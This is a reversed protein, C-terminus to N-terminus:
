AEASPDYRRLLEKAAKAYTEDSTDDLFLVQAKEEEQPRSRAAAAAYAADYHNELIDQVFEDWQGDAVLTKWASVREHGVRKVLVDICELLRGTETTEFHKYGARIWKVRESMPIELQTIDAIRMGSWMTSPVQVKGIMSSEGEVFVPRSADFTRAKFAIRSDFMKQSPQERAGPEEGLISGRHNAMVELDIVQAGAAELADLLKGKACGTKGAIVHYRFKDMGRLFELVGARYRKYGGPAFYVDFGIRSLVHALSLSREGGRWCYVLIKTDRPATLFREDIIKGLNAAVMAAGVKKAEFPDVQKYLTGVEKRQADNLVPTSVAGPVHDDDYESPARADCVFDFQAADFADDDLVQTRIRPGLDLYDEPYVHKSGVADARTTPRRHPATTVGSHPNTARRSFRLRELSTTADCSSSATAYMARSIKSERTAQHPPLARADHAARLSAHERAATPQSPSVTCSHLM